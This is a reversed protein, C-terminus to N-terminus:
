GISSHSTLVNTSLVTQNAAAAFRSRLVFEGFGYESRNSQAVASRLLGDAGVDQAVGDRLLSCERQCHIASPLALFGFQSDFVHLLDFDQILWPRLLGIGPTNFSAHVLNM